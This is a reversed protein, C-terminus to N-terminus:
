EMWSVCGCTAAACMRGSDARSFRLIGKECFPCPMEGSVEGLGKRWHGQYQAIAARAIAGKNQRANFAAVAEEDEASPM